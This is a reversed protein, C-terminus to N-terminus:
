RPVPDRAYLKRAWLYGILAIGASWAIAAVAHTGIAGGLLLGRLTDIVPTFPQYEAFWRLGEPMSSTPVFGSGLFPLLMLPMPTNSASEATRAVLGLAVSLWTVAFVFQVLLGAAALWEVPTASPRFGVLFAFATVVALGALVRIVSGLVHGTLVATRAIAMTRFRAVIGSVMDTAVSVSTGIAAGGIAFVLIGPTVFNVYASRGGGGALGAGLTGGFVYVFLLLFIVPMAIVMAIMAPYRSTHRLNRRLMTGSDRVADTLSSM